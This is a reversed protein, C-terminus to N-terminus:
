MVNQEELVQSMLKVAAPTVYEIDPGTQSVSFLKVYEIDALQVDDQSILWNTVKNNCFKVADDADIALVLDDSTSDTEVQTIKFITTVSFLILKNDM